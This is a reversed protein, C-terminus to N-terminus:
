FRRLLMRACAERTSHAHDARRIPALATRAIIGASDGPAISTASHAGCVTCPALADPHTPLRVPLCLSPPHLPHTCLQVPPRAPVPRALIHADHAHPHGATSDSGRSAGLREELAEQYSVDDLGFQLPM